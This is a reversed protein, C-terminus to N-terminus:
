LAPAAVAADGVGAVANPNPNANAGDLWRDMPTCEAKHAMKWHLAQCARSCYNVVGCVSCRRFEHRRTEPRGCLAHSCLRLGGGEEAPAPAPAPSSEAGLPRSAFWEVLFRNAAHAEGAAAAAARCGFDSLLCSHQRRTAKVSGATARLLSASTTVAAALERANAQILLRRGDLLSRRVGYGDQLCHGLERLADVHGLSAARACLAAGARLDRDDKSGGSGNFQIVALSYLAERHGGVAAAAMLAAGSGRSGLCYFRIMGLLYCADLNGADACRQLFRHASDSWSKARVALCRPSVKALVVKNQGLERFRKCTMIAGALDAPSRASAAVDALISVLLDDPLDEFLDGVAAGACGAAEMATRRRKRRHMEPAEAAPEHCSYCAGRRTKM